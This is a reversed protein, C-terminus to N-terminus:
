SYYDAGYGMTKIGLMTLMFVGKGGSRSGKGLKKGYSWRGDWMAAGEPSVAM